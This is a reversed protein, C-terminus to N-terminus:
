LEMGDGLELAPSSDKSSESQKVGKHLQSMMKANSRVTTALMTRKEEDTMSSWNPAFSLKGSKGVIVPGKERVISLHKQYPCQTDAKFSFWNSLYPQAGNSGADKGGDALKKVSRAVVKDMFTDPSLYFSGDVGAPTKCGVHLVLVGTSKETKVDGAETEKADWEVVKNPGVTMGTGVQICDSSWKIWFPRYESESIADPTNARVLLEGKEDGLRVRHVFTQNDIVVEYMERGRVAKRALAIHAARAAKIFLIVSEVRAVQYRFRYDDEDTPSVLQVWHFPNNPCIDHGHLSVDNKDLARQERRLQKAAEPSLPNGDADVGPIYGLEDDLGGGAESQENGM